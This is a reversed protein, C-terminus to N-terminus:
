REQRKEYVENRLELGNDLEDYFCEEVFNFAKKASWFKPNTSSWEDWQYLPIYKKHNLSIEIEYPKILRKYKIIRIKSSNNLM